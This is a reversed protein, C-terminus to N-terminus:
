AKVTTVAPPAVFSFSGTNTYRVDCADPTGSGTDIPSGTPCTIASAPSAMVGAVIAAMAVGMGWSACARARHPSPRHSM